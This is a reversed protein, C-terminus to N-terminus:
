FCRHLALIKKFVIEKVFMYCEAFLFPQCLAPLPKKIMFLLINQCIWVAFFRLTNCTKNLWRDAARLICVCWWDVACICQHLWADQKGRGWLSTLFNSNFVHISGSSAWCICRSSISSAIRTTELTDTNIEIICNYFQYFALPCMLIWFTLKLNGGAM